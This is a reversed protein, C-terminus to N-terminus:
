EKIKKRFLIQVFLIFYSLYMLLAYCNNYLLSNPVNPTYAFWFICILSGVIMQTIQILTILKRYPYLIYNQKAILAYYFYMIFHVFMNMTAFLIGTNMVIYSSHWCYICTVIHHFWHIFELQSKRFVIFLTDVFEFFKSINFLVVVYSVIYNNYFSIQYLSYNEIIVKVYIYIIGIVFGIGSLISLTMNWLFLLNNSIDGKYPERTSMYKKINFIVPIYLIAILGLIYSHYYLNNHIENYPTELKYQTFLNFM